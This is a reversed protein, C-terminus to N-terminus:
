DDKNEQKAATEAAEQEKRKTYNLLFDFVSTGEPREGESDVTNTNGNGGLSRTDVFGFFGYFVNEKAEEAYIKDYIFKMKFKEMEEDYKGFEIPDYELKTLMQNYADFVPNELLLGLAPAKPINIKEKNFFDQIIEVPCGIRVVMSAMSVMKRIQHLMFSQGHIRISIWETDTGEIVFPDSVKTSIIYRQALQDKFSKGITFNHFNHTGQYQEMASRFQSLRHNPIRYARRSQTEIQKISKLAKGYTTLEGSEPDITPTPTPTATSSGPLESEIATGISDLQSQSIGADLIKQNTAAWWAEGEPDPHFLDPNLARKSKVLEAMVTTPKPPLLSYTPLLYEYVRSSCLKRCDFSKTTRQIGWIRIQDPLEANIKDKIDPDEIIMKLSIVNGAAHVGKDTRAARMFGSKKIDDANEPSIAGARAMAEYIDREITKIAPDNQLQMGNYGTGCYGIMVACKKKPKRESKPIPQGNEDLRPVYPSILM